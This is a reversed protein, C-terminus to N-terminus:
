IPTKDHNVRQFKAAGLLILSLICFTRPSYSVQKDIIIGVGLILYLYYKSYQNYITQSVRTQSDKYM